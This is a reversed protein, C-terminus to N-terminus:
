PFRINQAPGHSLFLYFVQNGHLGTEDFPSLLEVVHRRFFTFLNKLDQQLKGTVSEVFGVRHGITQHGILCGVQLGVPRRFKKRGQQGADNAICILHAPINGDALVTTDGHQRRVYVGALFPKGHFLAGDTETHHADLAYPFASHLFDHFGTPFSPREPINQIEAFPHVVPGQVPTQQFVQDLAAGHIRQSGITGLQQGYIFLRQLQSDLLLAIIVAPLDAKEATLIKRFDIGYGQRLHVLHAARYQQFIFLFQDTKIHGPM